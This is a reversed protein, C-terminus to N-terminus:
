AHSQIWKKSYTLFEKSKSLDTKNQYLCATLFSDFEKTQITNSKTQLFATWDKGSLHAVRERGYSHIAVLKLQAAIQQNIIPSSGVKLESLIKLADRRYKNKKYSIFFRVLLTVSSLIAIWLLISWGITDFTFAIPDPEMLPKLQSSDVTNQIFLHKFPNM